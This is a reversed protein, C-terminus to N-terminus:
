DGCGLGSRFVVGVSGELKDKAETVSEGQSAVDLGPSLVVYGDGEHEIIATLQINVALEGM